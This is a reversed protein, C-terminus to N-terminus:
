EKYAEKRSSLQYGAASKERNVATDAHRLRQELAAIRGAAKVEQHALARKLGRITRARTEGISRMEELTKKLRAVEESAARKAANAAELYTNLDAIVTQASREKKELRSLRDQQEALRKGTELAQQKLFIVEQRTTEVETAFEQQIQELKGRERKLSRKLRDVRQDSVAYEDALARHDHILEDHASELSEHQRTLRALQQQLELVTAHERDWRDRWEAAQAEREQLAKRGRLWWGTWLGLLSAALLWAVIKFGLDIM